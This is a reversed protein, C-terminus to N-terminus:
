VGDDMRSFQRRVEETFGYMLQEAIGLYTGYVFRNHIRKGSAGRGRKRAKIDLFREHIPHTFRFDSGSVDVRRSRLLEGSREQYSDEIAWTQHQLMRRGAKQLTDTVFRDLASM